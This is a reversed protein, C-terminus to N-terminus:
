LMALRNQIEGLFATRQEPKLRAVVDIVTGETDVQYINKLYSKVTADKWNVRKLNTLLEEPDFGIEPQPTKAPTKIEAKTTETKPEDIQKSAGLWGRMWKVLPDTADVKGAMWLQAIIDARKQSEISAREEPSKVWGRGQKSVAQKLPKGQKDYIQTVKRHHYTIDGATRSTEQIDCDVETGVQILEALGKDWVEYKIGDEGYFEVVEFGKDGVAKPLSVSKVKILKRELKPTEEM